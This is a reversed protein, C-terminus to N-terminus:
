LRRAIAQALRDPAQPDHSLFLSPETLELELLLPRGEADPILDVRAYLVREVGGPIAALVRHAVDLEEDSPQRPDIQEQVFLGEVKEGEM